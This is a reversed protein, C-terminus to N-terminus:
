IHILIFSGRDAISIMFSNPESVILATMQDEQYGKM